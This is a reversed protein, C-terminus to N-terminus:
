DYSQGAVATAPCQRLLSGVAELTTASSDLANQTEHLDGQCARRFAALARAHGKDQAGLKLAHGDISVRRFDEIEASRGRGLIEIREKVTSPHGENAYTISAVSGNAYALGIIFDESLAGNWGIAEVRCASDGVLAACTDVFHCAEGLLRGGQRRDHYWHSPAVLGANVRYTLVLAGRGAAFHESALQVPGSWRRNFGVFLTRGSVQWALEVDRLEEPTLALPKECYVHKGARLAAATLAAHTDHPTAILVVSVEPDDIVAHPGSVAKEFGARVALRGASLGSASAVAIMRDFGAERCAPVLVSSAFAGAGILGVGYGGLPRTPAIRIPDNPAPTAPYTLVIGLAGAGSEILGYASPAESIPFHHTVLDAVALRGSGLLDLVAEQNRGETWRVHGPPYDVAWEEYSRDYRGPGYSRAVRLTLEKEYFANRELNLGLDGVVVVMGRDRCLVPTRAVASSSRGAATLLVADAGRGRTWQLVAATTDAGTELMGVAGAQTARDVPAAAIDIGFVQCGSAQALRVCLQGVLGLGVVVVKAGPGVEALRLGHLAVAAITAFAADEVEVSKPVPSCLLGPVAQFEAHNAKGAGGTAVLQGPSLATVAEGVEVVMGAASYGLPLYEDLRDKVVNATAGLGERRAKRVIQRVLDPRARAKALLNSQALATIARETGPSILSASTQVLVETVSITPRPVDLVQVRNGSVAQVVQKM